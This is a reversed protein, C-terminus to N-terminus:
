KISEKFNGGFANMGPSMFAKRVTTEVVRGEGDVHYFRGERKPLKESASVVPPKLLAKLKGLTSGSPTAAKVPPMREVFRTKYYFYDSPTSKPISPVPTGDEYLILPALSSTDSFSTRSPSEKSDKSNGRSNSDM